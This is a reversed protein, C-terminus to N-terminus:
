RKAIKDQDINLVTNKERKNKEGKTVKPQTCRQIYLDSKIDM